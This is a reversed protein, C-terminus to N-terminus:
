LPAEEDMLDGRLYRYGDLEFLYLRRYRGEKLDATTEGLRKITDFQNRVAIADSHPTVYLLRKYLAPKFAHFVEYHHDIRINSNWAVVPTDSMRGYYLVGGMVERDDIMVADYDSSLRAIDAGQGEWGRVRKVIESLGLSDALSFNTAAILFILM